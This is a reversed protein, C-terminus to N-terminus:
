IFGQFAPCMALLVFLVDTAYMASRSVEQSFPVKYLCWFFNFINRVMLRDVSEWQIVIM